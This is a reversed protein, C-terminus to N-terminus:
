KKLASAIAKDAEEQAKRLLSNVDLEGTYLSPILDTLQKEGTNEYPGKAPTAAFKHYYVAGWNVKKAYDAGLAKKVEPTTLASITGAKSLTLQFEDSTLYNLVKMAADKEKSTNSICIYNPYVQAAMGPVEKYTPVSVMDWNMEDMGPFFATDTFFVWMAINRDKIFQDMGPLKNKNNRVYDSFGPEELQGNFITTLITKWRGDGLTSKNTQVDVYPLSFPSLKLVHGTSTVLGLYQIGDEKRSLQKAVGFVEDWTMGDRPYPVGFKDFIDKNYMLSMAQMSSPLGYLQGGAMAKMADLAVPEFRNLDVSEKKILPSIDFGLGPNIVGDILSSLSEFMLDIPTGATVMDQTNIKSGRQQMFNFTYNPFKEKLYKGYLQDFQETTLGARSTVSLKVPKDAAEETRPLGVVDGAPAGTSSCGALLTMLMSATLGVSCPLSIIKNM